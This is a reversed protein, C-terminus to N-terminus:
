AARGIAIAVADTARNTTSVVLVREIPDNLIRAVQQGTTYTKGTGPPGWLVSWSKGWWSRLEELGSKPSPLIDPHIGGLTAALRAPLHARIAEFSPENFVADLFALFEFPRVYFSGIRPPFEPNQVVIFLRGTAEDVELVEGSWLISDDVDPHLSGHVFLDADAAELETLLLPGFATAGEWTWDFEVAHGVDLEYITGSESESTKRVKRCRLRKWTSADRFERRIAKRAANLHEICTTPLDLEIPFRAQNFDASSENDAAVEADTADIHRRAIEYEENPHV